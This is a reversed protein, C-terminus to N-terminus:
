FKLLTIYKLECHNSSQFPICDLLSKEYNAPQRVVAAAPPIRVYCPIERRRFLKFLLAQLAFRLYHIIM